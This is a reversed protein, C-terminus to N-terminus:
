FLDNKVAYMTLEANSKMKMKKLINSRYTSITKASLDLTKSIVALTKGKAILKMVQLERDSLHEHPKKEATDLELETALIEALSPSVYKYGEHIKRVATILEEPASEKTVYGSAGRRISEVAFEEEPHMSLILIPLKPYNTKLAPIIEIGNRGPMSIDLIILDFDNSKLKEFLEQADKAEDTVTMDPTGALIQKIGRRVITHDDAIIIKIM